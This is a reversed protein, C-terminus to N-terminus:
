KVCIMIDDVSKGYYEALMKKAEDLKSSREWILELNEEDFVNYLSHSEKIKFVRMIDMSPGVDSILDNNCDCLRSYYLNKNAGFVNGNIDELVLYKNGSRLEVVMGVKLDNKAFGTDSVKKAIMEDNFSWPSEEVNYFGNCYASSISRIILIKGKLENMTSNFYLEDYYHDVELDDRLLVKDGVKYKRASM